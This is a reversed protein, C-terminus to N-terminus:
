VAVVHNVGPTLETGVRLSARWRTKSVRKFRKTVVNGGVTVRLSKAGRPAFLTVSVRKGTMPQVSNTSLKVKTYQGAKLPILKEAAGAAPVFLLAALVVLM